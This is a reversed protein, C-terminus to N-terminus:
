GQFMLLFAQWLITVNKKLPALTWLFTTGFQYLTNRRSKAKYAGRTHKRVVPSMFRISKVLWGGPKIENSSTWATVLEACPNFFPHSHLDTIWTHRAIRKVRWTTEMDAGSVKTSDISWLWGLFRSRSSWFHHDAVTGIQSLM